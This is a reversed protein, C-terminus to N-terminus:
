DQSPTISCLAVRMFNRESWLPLALGNEYM